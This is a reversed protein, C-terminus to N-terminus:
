EVNCIWFLESSSDGTLFSFLLWFYFLTDSKLPGKSTSTTDEGLDSVFEEFCANSDQSNM